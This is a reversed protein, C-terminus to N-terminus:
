QVCLGSKGSGGRGTQYNRSIRVSLCSRTETNDRTRLAQCLAPAGCLQASLINSHCSLAWCPAQSVAAESFIAPIWAILSSKPCSATQGKIHSPTPLIDKRGGWGGGVGPRWGVSSSFGTGLSRLTQGVPSGHAGLSWPGCGVRGAPGLGLLPQLPSASGQLLGSLPSTEFVLFSRPTCLCHDTGLLSRAVPM